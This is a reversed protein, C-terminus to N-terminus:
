RKKKLRVALTAPSMSDVALEDPVNVLHEEAFITVTQNTSVEALDISVSVESARLLDFAPRLGTLTIEAVTTRPEVLEFSKPINRYEIPVLMTRQLTDSRDVFVSFLFVATALAVVVRPAHIASRRRPSTEGVVSEAIRASTTAPDIVELRGNSCLTITGREESVAVVVADSVEALGLAAAHRTGSDHILDLQKSLPLHLGLSKIRGSQIVIAGDHGPSKPHFISLLLPVSVVANVVVGGQLHRDLPEKGPFVILAGTHEEAMARIATSVSDVWELGSKKAMRPKATSLTALREFAKRIDQQFIVVLAFLLFLAGYRFALMTLYLNFADAVVFIALVIVSVFAVSKTARDSLWTLLGYILIAVIAIDVFDAIRVGAFSELLATIIEDM